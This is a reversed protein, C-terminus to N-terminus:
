NNRVTKPKQAVTMRNFGFDDEWDMKKKHVLGAREAIKGPEKETKFYMRWGYSWMIFDLIPGGKLMKEQVTSFIAIGDEKLFESIFSLTMVCQETPIPCFMGIFLLMHAQGIWSAEEIKQPVFQISDAVGLKEAYQQGCCLSEEDPDVHIIRVLDKLWPNEVMMYITDLGYAAGVNFIVYKEDDRLGLRKREDMILQPLREIICQLRLFIAHAGNTHLYAEDLKTPADTEGYIIQFARPNYPNESVWRAIVSNVKGNSEGLAYGLWKATERSEIGTEIVAKKLAAFIDPPLNKKLFRGIASNFDRKKLRKSVNMFSRTGERKRPVFEITEKRGEPMVLLM